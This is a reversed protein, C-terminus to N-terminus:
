YPTCHASTQTSPFSTKPVSGQDRPCKKFVQPIKQSGPEQCQGRLLSVFKVTEMKNLLFEQILDLKSFVDMSKHASHAFCSCQQGLSNIATIMYNLLPTHPPLPPPHHLKISSVAAGLGAGVGMGCVPSVNCSDRDKQYTVRQDLGWWEEQRHALPLPGPKLSSHGPDAKHSDELSELSQRAVPDMKAFAELHKQTDQNITFLKGYHEVMTEVLTEAHPEGESYGEMGKPVKELVKILEPKLKRQEHKTQLQRLERSLVQLDRDKNSTASPGPGQGMDMAVLM